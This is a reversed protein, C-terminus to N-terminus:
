ELFTGCNGCFQMGYNWKRGCSSCVLKDSTYIPVKVEEKTNEIGVLKLIIVDSDNEFNVYTNTFLQNTKNGKVTIGTDESINTDSTYFCSAMSINSARAVSSSSNNICMTDFSRNSTDVTASYMSSPYCIKYPVQRYTYWINNPIYTYTLTSQYVKEKWIQIRILSDDINVGRYEEIEKTRKIFKFVNKISNGELFGKLEETSNPNIIIRNNDCVNNGDIDITVGIKISNQNKIYISYETGFPLLIESKNQERLFKNNSKLSVVVNNQFM